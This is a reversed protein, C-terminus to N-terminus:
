GHAQAESVVLALFHGLVFSEGVVKTQFDKKDGEYGTPVRCRRFDSRGLRDSYAWPFPGTWPRRVLLEARVLLQDVLAGSFYASPLKGSFAEM